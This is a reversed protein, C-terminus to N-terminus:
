MLQYVLGSTTHSAEIQHLQQWTQGNDVSFDLAVNDRPVQGRQCRGGADSSGIQLDFM